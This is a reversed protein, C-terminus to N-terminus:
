IISTFQMKARYRHVPSSMFKWIAADLTGPSCGLESAAARVTSEVEDYTRTQAGADRVFATVHQDVAIHNSSGALIAIYDLTKPGVNRVRRLADRTEKEKDPDCIRDALEGVTDIGLEEMVATLDYIKKMKPSTASWALYTPLDVAKLRARFGTTTRADPWDSYVKRARPWVTTRYRTRPQLAADVILAGMHDWMRKSAQLDLGVKEVLDVVKVVDKAVTM